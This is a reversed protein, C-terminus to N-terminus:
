QRVCDEPESAGAVSFDYCTLFRTHERGVTFGIAGVVAVLAVIAATVRRSGAQSLEPMSMDVLLRLTLPVSVLLILVLSAVFIPRNLAESTSGIIDAAALLWCLPAALAIRILWKWPTDYGGNVTTIAFLISSAVVLQFVNDYFIEGYAGLNFAISWALLGLTVAALALPGSVIHRDTAPETPVPGTM